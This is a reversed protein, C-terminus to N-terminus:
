PLSAAPRSEGPAPGEFRFRLGVLILVLLLTGNIYYGFSYPGFQYAKPSFIIGLMILTAVEVSSAWGRRVAGLFILGFAIYLHILKYDYSVQTFALLMATLVLVRNVFPARRLILLIVVTSTLVGLTYFPSLRSALHFARQVPFCTFLAGQLLAFFSHGFHRAPDQGTLSNKLLAMNELIQPMLIDLPEHMALMAALTAGLAVLISLLLAKFRGDLVFLVLFIAPTVKGSAALGFLIASTLHRGRAYALLGLGVLMFVSGEINGRDIMMGLPYSTLFLTLALMAMLIRYGPCKLVLLCSLWFIFLHVAALYLALSAFYNPLYFPLILIPGMPPYSLYGPIIQDPLGPEIVKPIPWDFEYHGHSVLVIGRHSTSYPNRGSVIERTYYWIILYDGATANFSLPDARSFEPYYPSGLIARSEEDYASPDYGFTRTLWGELGSAPIVQEVLFTGYNRAIFHFRYSVLSLTGTLVFLILVLREISMRRGPRGGTPEMELMDADDPDIPIPVAPEPHRIGKLTWSGAQRTLGAISPAEDIAVDRGCL